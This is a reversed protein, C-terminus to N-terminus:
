PRKPSEGRPQALTHSTDKPHWENRGGEGQLILTWAPSCLIPSSSHDCLWRLKAWAPTGSDLWRSWYCASPPTGEDWLRGDASVTCLARRSQWRSLRGLSRLRMTHESCAHGLVKSWAKTGKCGQRPPGEECIDKFGKAATTRLPFPLSSLTPVQREWCPVRHENESKRLM